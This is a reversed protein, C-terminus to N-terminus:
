KDTTTKWHIKFLGKGIHLNNNLAKISLDIRSLIGFDFEMSSALERRTQQIIIITFSSLITRMSVYACRAGRALHETRPSLCAIESSPSTELSTSFVTGKGRGNLGLSTKWIGGRAFLHITFVRWVYRQVIREWFHMIRWLTFFSIRNKFYFIKHNLVVRIKKRFNEICFRQLQLPM